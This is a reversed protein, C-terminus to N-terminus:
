TDDTGGASSRGGDNVPLSSVRKVVVKGVVGEIHVLQGVHAVPGLPHARAKAHLGLVGVIHAHGRHRRRVLRGGRVAGGGELGGVSRYVVGEIHWKRRIERARIGLIDEIGGRARHQPPRVGLVRRVVDGDVLEGHVCVVDDVEPLEAIVQGATRPGDLGVGLERFGLPDLTLDGSHTERSARIQHV